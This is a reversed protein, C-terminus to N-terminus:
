AAQGTRGITRMWAVEESDPLCALEGMTAGSFNFISDKLYSGLVPFHVGAPYSPFIVHAKDQKQGAAPRKEDAFWQKM